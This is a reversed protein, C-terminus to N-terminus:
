KNNEKSTPARRLNLKNCDFPWTSVYIYQFRGEGINKVSHETNRPVYVFMGGHVNETVDGVRMRGKGELIIWIQEGESHAHLPIEVGKEVIDLGAYCAKAEEGLFVTETYGDCQEMKKWHFDKALM